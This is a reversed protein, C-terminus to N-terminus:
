RICTHAPFFEREEVLIHDAYLGLAAQRALLATRDYDELTGSSIWVTYRWDVSAHLDAVDMTVSFDRLPM